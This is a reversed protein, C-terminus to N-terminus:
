MTAFAEFLRKTFTWGVPAAFAFDDARGKTSPHCLCQGASNDIRLVNHSISRFDNWDAVQKMKLPSFKGLGASPTDCSRQRSM